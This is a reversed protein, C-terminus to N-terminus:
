AEQLQISKMLEEVQAGAAELESLRRFSNVGFGPEDKIGTDLPLKPNVVEELLIITPRTFRRVTYVKDQVPVKLNHKRIAEKAIDSVKDNICVVKDGIDFM